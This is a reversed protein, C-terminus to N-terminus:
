FGRVEQKLYAPVDNLCMRLIMSGLATSYPETLSSESGYVHFTGDERQISILQAAMTTRWAEWAYGGRLYNLRTAYYWYYFSYSEGKDLYVSNNPLHYDLDQCASDLLQSDDAYLTLLLAGIANRINSIDDSSNPMYTFHRAYTCQKVFRLASDLARRLDAKEAPTEAVSESAMLAVTCWGTVSLDADEANAGYRWGGFYINNPAIIKGLEPPRSGTLQAALLYRMLNRALPRAKEHGNAVAESLSLATIAVEYISTVPSSLKVGNYKYEYEKFNGQLFPLYASDIVQTRSKADKGESLAAMVMAEFPIMWDHTSNTPATREEMKKMARDLAAETAKKEAEGFVPKFPAIALEVSIKVADGAPILLELTYDGEDLVPYFTHTALTDSPAWPLQYGYKVAKEGTIWVYLDPSDTKFLPRTLTLKYIGHQPVSLKFYHERNARTKARVPSEGLPMATESSQNTASEDIVDAGRTAAPLVLLALGLGLVAFRM